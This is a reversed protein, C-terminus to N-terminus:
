PPFTFRGLTPGIVLPHQQFFASWAVALRDREVYLETSNMAAPDFEQVFQTLAGLAGESMIPAMSPLMNQLDSVLLGSGLDREGSGTGATRGGRGALRGGRSVGGAQHIAALTAAPLPSSPMRTVLAVKGQWRLAELAPSSIGRIGAQCSM